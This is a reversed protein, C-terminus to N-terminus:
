APVFVLACALDAGDGPHQHAFHEVLLICVRRQVFHHFVAAELGVRGDQRGGPSEVVLSKFTIIAGHFAM